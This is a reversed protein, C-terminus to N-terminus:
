ESVCDFRAISVKLRATIKTILGVIKNYKVYDDRNQVLYRRLVQTSLSLPVILLEVGPHAHHLLLLVIVPAM